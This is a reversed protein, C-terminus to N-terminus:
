RLPPSTKPAVDLVSTGGAVGPADVADIAQASEFRAPKDPEDAIVADPVDPLCPAPIAVRKCCAALRPAAPAGWAWSSIDPQDVAIGWGAVLLAVVLGRALTQAMATLM